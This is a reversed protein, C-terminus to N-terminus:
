EPLLVGLLAVADDRGGSARLVRWTTLLLQVGKWRNEPRM